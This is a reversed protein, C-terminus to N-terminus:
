VHGLALYQSFDECRNLRGVDINITLIPSLPVSSLSLNPRYYHRVEQPFAIEFIKVMRSLGTGFLRHNCDQAM